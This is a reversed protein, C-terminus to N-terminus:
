MPDYGFTLLNFNKRDHECLIPLEIFTLYFYDSTDRFYRSRPDVPDRPSDNFRLMGYPM